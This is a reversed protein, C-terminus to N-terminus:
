RPARRRRGAARRILKDGIRHEARDFFDSALEQEIHPAIPEGTDADVFWSDRDLRM